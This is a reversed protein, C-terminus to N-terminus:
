KPWVSPPAVRGDEFYWRVPNHRETRFITRGDSTKACIRGGCLKKLEAEGEAIKENLFMSACAESVGGDCAKKLFIKAREKDVQKDGMEFIGALRYCSLGHGENCTKLYLDKARQYDKAQFAKDAEATSPQDASAVVSALLLALFVAAFGAPL